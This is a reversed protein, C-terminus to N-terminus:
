FKQSGVFKPKPNRKPYPETGDAFALSTIVLLLALVSLKRM